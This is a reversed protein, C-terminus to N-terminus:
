MLARDGYSTELIAQAISLSELVRYKNMVKQADPVILNIFDTQQSM